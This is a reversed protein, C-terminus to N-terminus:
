VLKRVNEQFPAKCLPTTYSNFIRIPTTPVSFEWFSFVAAINHFYLTAATKQKTYLCKTTLETTQFTNSGHSKTIYYNKIPLLQVVM